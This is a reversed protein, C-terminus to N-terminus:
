EENKQKKVAKTKQLPQQTAEAIEGRFKPILYSPAILTVQEWGDPLSLGANATAKQSEHYRELTRWVIGVADGVAQRTWGFQDGVAQYTLSDVLVARAATVRDDSINLLPRVAEFEAATMRRKSRM